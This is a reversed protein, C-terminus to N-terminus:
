FLDWQDLCGYPWGYDPDAEEDSLEKLAAKWVKDKLRITALEGQQAATLASKDLRRGLEALMERMAEEREDADLTLGWQRFPKLQHAEPVTHNWLLRVTHFLHLTEMEQPTLAQNENTLWRFTSTM